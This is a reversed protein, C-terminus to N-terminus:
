FVTFPLLSLCSALFIQLMSSQICSRQSAGASSPSSPKMCRILSGICIPKILLLRYWVQEWGFLPACLKDVNCLCAYVLSVSCASCVGANFDYPDPLEEPPEEPTKPGAEAEGGLGQRDDEFNKQMGGGDEEGEVGRLVVAETANRPAAVLCSQASLLAHRGSLNWTVVSPM